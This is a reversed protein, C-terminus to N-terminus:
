PSVTTETLGGSCKLTVTVPVVSNYVVGRRRSTVIANACSLKPKGSSNGQPYIELTSKTAPEVKSWVTTATADDWLELTVDTDRVTAEYTKDIDSAGTSEAVEASENTEASKLYNAAWASLNFVATLAAGTYKAM